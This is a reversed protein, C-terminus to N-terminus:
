LSPLIDPETAAHIKLVTLTNLYTSTTHTLDKNNEEIEIKKTYNRQM